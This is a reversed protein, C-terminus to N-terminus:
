PLCTWILGSAIDPSCVSIDVATLVNHTNLLTPSGDNLVVLGHDNAYDELIKGNTSNSTSDWLVDQSNVDGVVTHDNNRSVLINDIVSPSFNIDGKRTFIRSLYSSEANCM